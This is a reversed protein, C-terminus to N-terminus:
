QYWNLALYVNITLYLPVGYSLAICIAKWWRPEDEVLELVVSLCVNYIVYTIAITIVLRM